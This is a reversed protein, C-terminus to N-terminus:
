IETSFPAYVDATAHISLNQSCLVITPYPSNVKSPYYPADGCFEIGMDRVSEGVAVGLILAVLFCTISMMKVRTYIYISFSAPRLINLFGFSVYTHSDLVM